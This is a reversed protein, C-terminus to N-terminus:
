ESGRPYDVAEAEYKWADLADLADRYKTALWGVAGRGLPLRLPPDASKAIRVIAEAARKPDGSQRGHSAELRSRRAGATARYADIPTATARLSGGYFDTRFPGPQVILVRIGLPGVEKALAESIGELAFKSAAYYGSGANAVVGGVSSINVITGRGQARMGPLIRRILAMPAFVNVEFLARVDGDDGEEVAALYGFGANNVLVDIRGFASEAAAVAQEHQSPDAVDLALAVLRGPYREVLDSLASANRSTAACRDGARLVAETLERGLGSSCGTIFWVDGDALTM